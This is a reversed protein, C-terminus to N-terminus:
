TRRKERRRELLIRAEARVAESPEDVCFGLIEKEDIVYEPGIASVIVEEDGEGGTMLWAVVPVLRYGTEDREDEDELVAFMRGEPIVAKIM